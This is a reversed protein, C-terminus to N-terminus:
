RSKEMTRWYFFGVALAGIGFMILLAGNEAAAITVTMVLLFVGVFLYLRDFHVGALFSALALVLLSCDSAADRSMLNTQELMVLVKFTVLLSAWHLLPKKIKSWTSGEARKNNIARWISIGAYALVILLWCEWAGNPAGQTVALGILSLGLMVALTIGDLKWHHPVKPHQDEAKATDDSPKEGETESAAKPPDTKPSDQDM